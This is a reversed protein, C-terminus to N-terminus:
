PVHKATLERGVLTIGEQALRARARDLQPITVAGSSIWIWTKIQGTPRLHGQLQIEAARKKKILVSVESTNATHVEIALVFAGNYSLLYDWRNANQYDARLADDLNLSDQFRSRLDGAIRTRDIELLAALGKEILRVLKSQEHLSAKLPTATVVDVRRKM